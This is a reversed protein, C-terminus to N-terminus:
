QNEKRSQRRYVGPTMGYAKKFTHIFYSVDNFGSTLAIETMTMDTTRLDRCAKSLRYGILYSFPSIGAISRFCRMFHNPSMDAMKALDELKMPESYNEEMYTIAVKLKQTIKDSTSSDKQECSYLGQDLINGFLLFILAKIGFAYGEGNKEHLYSMDACLKAFVDSCDSLRTIVRLEGCSLKKAFETCIDTKKLMKQLELLICTYVCNEPEGSHITGGPIFIVDGAKLSYTTDNLHLQFTGSHIYILEHEPHWHLMMRYRVHTSDVEYIAVPLSENGHTIQERYNM